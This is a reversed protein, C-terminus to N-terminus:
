RGCGRGLPWDWVQRIDLPVYPTCDLPAGGQSVLRWAQAPKELFIGVDGGDQFSAAARETLSQAPDFTAVAWHDRTSPDYAYYVSGPRTGAVVDAQLRVAMEYSSILQRRVSNTVVLNEPGAAVTVPSSPPSPQRRGTGSTPPSSPLETLRPEGPGASATQQPAPATRDAPHATGPSSCGCLTPLIGLSLAVPWLATAKVQGVGIKWQRIM